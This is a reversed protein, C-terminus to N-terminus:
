NQGNAQRGLLLAMLEPAANHQQQQPFGGNHQGGQISRGLGGDHGLQNHQQFRMDVSSDGGLGRQPLHQSQLTGGMQYQRLNDFGNLHGGGGQGMGYGRNPVLRNIGSSSSDSGYGGLGPGDHYPMRSGASLPEPYQDLVQRAGMQLQALHNAPIRGASGVNQVGMTPAGHPGLAQGRGGLQALLRAQELRQQELRQQQQQELRQQELRRQELLQQQQHQQQLQQLLNQRGMGSGMGNGLGMGSGSLGDFGNIGMRSQGLSPEQQGYLQQQQQQQLSRLHLSEQSPIPGLRGSTQPVVSFGLRDDMRQQQDFVDRDRSQIPPRLGPVLDNSVFSGRHEFDGNQAAFLQQQQRRALAERDRQEMLRAERIQAERQQQLARAALIDERERERYLAQQQQQMSQPLRNLGAPGGLGNQSNQLIALLEQLNADSAPPTGGM